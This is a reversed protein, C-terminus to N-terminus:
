EDCSFREWLASSKARAFGPKEPHVKRGAHGVLGRPEFAAARAGAM